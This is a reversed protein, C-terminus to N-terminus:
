RGSPRNPKFLYRHGFKLGAFYPLDFNVDNSHLRAVELSATFGKKSRYQIGLPFYYGTVLPNGVDVPFYSFYTGVYPSWRRKDHISYLHANIGIFVGAIGGGGETRIHPFLFHDFSVSALITPGGLVLHVGSPRARREKPLSDQLIFITSDSSSTIEEAQINLFTFM